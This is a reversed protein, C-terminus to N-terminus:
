ASSKKSDSIKELYKESHPVHPIHGRDKEYELLSFDLSSIHFMLQIKWTWDLQQPM